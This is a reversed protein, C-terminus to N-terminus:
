TSRRRMDRELVAHLYTLPEMLEKIERKTLDASVQAHVVSEVVSVIHAIDLYQEAPDRIGVNHIFPLFLHDLNPHLVNFVEELVVVADEDLQRTRSSTFSALIDFAGQAHRESTHTLAFIVALLVEYISKPKATAGVKLTKKVPSDGFSLRRKSKRSRKRDEHRERDSRVFALSEDSSPDDSSHIVM